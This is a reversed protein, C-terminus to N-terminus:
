SKGLLQRPSRGSLVRAQIYLTLTFLILQAAALIGIWYGPLQSQTLLERFSQETPGAASYSSLTVTYTAAAYLLEQVKSLLGLSVLSGLVVGLVALTMGSGFLYRSTLKPGAGLSRMIGLNRRQRSQYLLLYLALLLLWGLVVLTFLQRSSQSVAQISGLISGYGQDTVIFQGELSTGALAKTFEEATGNKLKVSLYVGWSADPSSRSATKEAGNEDTYTVSGSHSFGGFGGPLQAKKPIFVTNPTFNYSGEAWEDSLQYLGIVTFEEDRTMLETEMSVNGITPNNLKGDQPTTSTSANNPQTVTGENTCWFQSIPITDGVRIGSKEALATSLVCVKASIDYEEQSIGRGEAIRAKSNAFLYMSEMSDTGLIPVSHQAIDQVVLMRVWEANAPDTLFEEATGEIRTIFPDGVTASGIRPIDEEGGVDYSMETVRRLHEGDIMGDGFTYYRPPAFVNFGDHHYAGCFVYRGGVELFKADEERLCTLDVYGVDRQAETGILCLEENVSLFEEIQVKVSQSSQREIGGLKVPSLDYPDDVWGEEVETVTAIFIVEDYGENVANVNGNRILPSFRPSYGGTLTNEYVAEVCDLERLLKQDTYSTNRNRFFWNQGNETATVTYHIDTRYAVTDHLEDIIVATRESSYWLGAGICLLVTMATVLVLWLITAFPRRTLRIKTDM